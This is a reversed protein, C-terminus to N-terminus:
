DKGCEEILAEAKEFEINRICERIRILAESDGKRATLEDVLKLAPTQNGLRVAETLAEWLEEGSMPKEEKEDGILAPKIKEFEELFCNLGSIVRKWKMIFLPLASIVYERDKDKARRELRRASYYLDEGGVNGANGKIAHILIAANEYDDTEVCQQIKEISKETNKIFYDVVRAFQLIDGSLHKLALEFSIDYNKLLEKFSAKTEDSLVSVVDNNVTTVLGEPLHRILAKELLASDIPKLLYDDFGKSLFMEKKAPTADATLVIIPTRRNKGADMARLHEMAEIGNIEPMMYDMLVLNYDTMAYKEYCEAASGAMEVKVLTRKLLSKVVMLNMNNDDVVLIRAEPAIFFGDSDAYTESEKGQKLRIDFWFLSGLGYQSKVEIKTGMLNALKNSIALGLGTGEISRNRIIDAREFSEFIKEQDEPAIGNGTDSVEFHLTHCTNDGTGSSELEQVSLVITGKSTYKVANSLLNSLMQSLKQKDGYLYVPMKKDIDMVFELGKKEAEKGFFVGLSETMKLANFSEEFLVEKGMDIRSLDLFQNVMFLLHQGANDINQAYENIQTDESERLIMENMGLLMNIPTRIEHSINALLVSKANSSEEAVNQQKRYEWLYMMFVLGIGISSFLIGAMQDYFQKEPNEFHQVYEPYKFSFWCVGVYFLTQIIEMIILLVGKYMLSTFIIGFAFFYPISGNMAGTELFLWAFLFMFVSVSTLIYGILYKRTAHVFAMLGISAAAALLNILTGMLDASTFMDQVAGVLSVLVGATGLLKFLRIDLENEKIYFNIIFRKLGGFM